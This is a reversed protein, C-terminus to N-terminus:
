APPTPPPLPPLDTCIWEGTRACYRLSGDPNQVLMRIMGEETNFGIVRTGDPSVGAPAAQSCSAATAALALALVLRVM